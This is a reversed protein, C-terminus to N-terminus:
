LYSPPSPPDWAEQLGRIELGRAFGRTTAVKTAAPRQFARRCSPPKAPESSLLFLLVMSETGGLVVGYYDKEKKRGM